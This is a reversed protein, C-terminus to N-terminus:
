KEVPSPVFSFILIAAAVVSVTLVVVFLSAVLIVVRMACALLQLIFNGASM